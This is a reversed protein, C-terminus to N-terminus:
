PRGDGTAAVQVVSRHQWQDFHFGDYARAARLWSGAPCPTGGGGGDKGGGGGDKTALAVDGAGGCADALRFFRDVMEALVWAAAGDRAAGCAYVVGNQLFPSGPDYDTAFMLSATGCLAASHLHRLAHDLLVADADVCLVNYGLRVLRAFVSWRVLWQRYRGAIAPARPLAELGSEWFSDWVCPTRAIADRGLRAPVRGIADGLTTCVEREYAVLLAHRYGLAELGLLANLALAGGASNSAILMLEDGRASPSAASRAVTRLVSPDTTAVDFTPLPAM